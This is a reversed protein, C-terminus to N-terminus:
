VPVGGDRPNNCCNPLTATDVTPELELGDDGDKRDGTTDTPCNVLGGDGNSRGPLAGVTFPPRVEGMIDTPPEGTGPGILTPLDM